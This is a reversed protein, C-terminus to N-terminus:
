SEKKNKPAPKAKNSPAAEVKVEVALGRAVLQAGDGDNIEFEDGARLDSPTAATVLITDKAILKM